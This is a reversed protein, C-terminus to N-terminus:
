IKEEHEKWLNSPVMQLSVGLSHGMFLHDTLRVYYTMTFPIEFNDANFNLSDRLEGEIVSVRFNRSVYNIGTEFSFNKTFNVTIHTGISFGILPTSSFKINGLDVENKTIRFMEIPMIPEVFFGFGAVKEQSYASINSIIILILLIKKTKKYM